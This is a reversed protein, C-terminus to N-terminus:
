QSMKDIAKRQKEAAELLQKEVNKAKELAEAQGALPNKIKTEPAKECGSMALLGTLLVFLFINNKMSIRM